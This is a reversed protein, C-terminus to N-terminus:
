ELGWPGRRQEARPELPLGLKNKLIRPKISFLGTGVRVRGPQVRLAVLPGLSHEHEPTDTLCLVRSRHERALGLLRGQWAPRRQWAASQSGTGAEVPGRPGPETLDLVVLGFAGSRLLLEAAKPVGYPGAGPPVHIVILSELDVGGEQLDPPFLPGGAPQVWAATEGERQIHRVIDVSLTLRAADGQGSIEVLRGAAASAIQEVLGLPEGAVPSPPFLPALPVLKPLQNAM